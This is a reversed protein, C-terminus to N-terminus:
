LVISVYFQPSMNSDVCKIVIFRAPGDRRELVAVVSLEMLKERIIVALDGLSVVTIENFVSYFTNNPDCQLLLESNSVYDTTEFFIYGAHGWIFSWSSEHQDSQSVPGTQSGKTHNWSTQVSVNSQKIRNGSNLDQHFKRWLSGASDNHLLNARCYSTSNKKWPEFLFGCVCKSQAWVLLPSQHLHFSKWAGSCM